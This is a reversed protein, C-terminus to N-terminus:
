SHLWTDPLSVEAVVEGQAHCHFAKDIDVSAQLLPCATYDGILTDTCQEFADVLM